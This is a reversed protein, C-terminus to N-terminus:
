VLIYFGTKWQAKCWSESFLDKSARSVSYARRGPKKLWKGIQNCLCTFLPWLPSAVQSKLPTHVIESFCILHLSIELSFIRAVFNWPSVLGGMKAPFRRNEAFIEPRENESLIRGCKSVRGPWLFVINEKNLWDKKACNKAM